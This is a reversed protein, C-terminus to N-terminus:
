ADDIVEVPRRLLRPLRRLMGFFLRTHMWSIRVNDALLRFNSREGGDYRVRVPRQVIPLGAWALRVLIESDFEMRPGVPERDLVALTEPLPYLRFGCMSDRIAPSCTHVRVWFNTLARGLRRGRPEEPALRYATVVAGPHRAAADLFAPIETLDHQGDADIQVAATYGAAWAERLGRCVAAGKGGNRALRHLFVGPRRALEELRARLAGENGDDILLTDLGLAGLADLMRPLHAGHRYVPILVCPRM